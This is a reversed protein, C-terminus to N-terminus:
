LRGATISLSIIIPFKAPCKFGDQEEENNLLACVEVVGDAENVPEPDDLRVQAM